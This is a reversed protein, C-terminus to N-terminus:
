NRSDGAAEKGSFIAVAWLSALVIYLFTYLASMWIYSMPIPKNVAVADVLWFFQWNPCISYLLGLVWDLAELGTRRQFLYNSLMGLFFIATCVCLNPVVDLRTAAVVAITAMAAVAFNVFTNGVLLTSLLRASDSLCRGIRKDAAVDRERIRQRQAPTISFLITESGSFFASLAFLVLMTLFQLILGAM